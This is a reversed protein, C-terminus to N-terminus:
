QMKGERRFYQELEKFIPRAANGAGKAIPKVFPALSLAADGAGLAVQGVQGLVGPMGNMAYADPIARAADYADEAGIATGM